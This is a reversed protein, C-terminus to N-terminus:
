ELKDSNDSDHISGRKFNPQSATDNLNTEHHNSNFLEKEYDSKFIAGLLFLSKFPELAAKPSRSFFTYCDQVNGIYVFILYKFAPVTLGIQYHRNGPMKFYVSHERNTNNMMTSILGSSVVSTKLGNMTFAAPCTQRFLGFSSTLPNFAVM